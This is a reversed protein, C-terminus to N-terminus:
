ARTLEGTLHRTLAVEPMAMHLEYRLRDGHVAIRRRMDTVRPGTSTVSVAVSTLDLVGDDLTGEDGEAIGLPHALVLEVRGTGAPRLFGREFHLPSGDEISWSRQADPLFADGVHEFIMEEGYRFPKGPPWEGEGEGRWTGLLFAMAEVDPHLPLEEAM